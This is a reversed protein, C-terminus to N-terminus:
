KAAPMEKRLRAINFGAVKQAYRWDHSGPREFYLHDIGAKQLLTHARRNGLLAFDETGCDLILTKHIGRLHDIQGITSCASWRKRNKEYPGLIGAIEWELPFEALDMIGSISCAGIFLDPYKELLTTAGHGGMSIGIVARGSTRPVTRYSSDVFPLVEKVIYSEFLSGTKEPSDLYWSNGASPCLFIVQFSDAFKKLPAIAPWTEHNGGFGHLLYIVPFHLAKNVYSDPLVITANFAWKMCSSPIPITKQDAPFGSLVFFCLFFFFVSARMDTTGTLM